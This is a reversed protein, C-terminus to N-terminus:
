GWAVETALYDFWISRVRLGGALQVSYRYSGEQVLVWDRDMDVGSLVRTMMRSGVEPWGAFCGESQSSLFEEQEVATLSEIPSSWIYVPPELIPEGFEFYFHGRANKLIVRDIRPQDPLWVYRVLGGKTIYEKRSKEIVARLAPSKALARAASSNRQLEPHTSGTLVCSVFTVAYQEDKSFGNNCARCITVQPLNQPRPKFLLSKTPVHDENTELDHLWRSCHICWSRQRDDVFEEIREM